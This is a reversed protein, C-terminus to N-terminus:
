SAESWNQVFAQFAKRAAKDKAFWKDPIILADAGTITIATHGHAIEVSEVASWGIKTTIEGRTVSLGEPGATIETKISMETGRGYRHRYSWRIFILYWAIGAFAAILASLMWQWYDTMGVSKFATRTLLAMGASIVPATVGAYYVATPGVTGGRTLRALRKVDKETLLGSTKVSESM